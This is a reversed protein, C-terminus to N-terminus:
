QSQPKANSSDILAGAEQLFLQAIIRDDWDPTFDFTRGKAFKRGSAISAAAADKQGLRYQAMALVGYAEAMRSDVGGRSIVFQLPEIAQSFNGQRYEVLGKVFQFHPWDNNTSGGSLATDALAALRSLSSQAPPLIM